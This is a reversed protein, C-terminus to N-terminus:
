LIEIFGCMLKGIQCASCFYFSTLSQRCFSHKFKRHLGDTYMKSREAVTKYPKQKTKEKLGMRYGKQREANDKLVDGDSSKKQIKCKKIKRLKKIKQM